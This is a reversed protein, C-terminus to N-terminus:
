SIPDQGLDKQGQERRVVVKMSLLSHLCRRSSSVFERRFLKRTIKLVPGM